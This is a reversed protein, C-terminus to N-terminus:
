DEISVVTGSGVSRGGETVDFTDGVLLAVPDELEVPVTAKGGPALTADGLKLTASVSATFIALLPRYGDAVPTSRGGEAALTIEATVHTHATVSGPAAIVRGREITDQDVGRLLVGVDDGAKASDVNAAHIQLQLVTAKIPAGAGGVVEVADGTHIEGRVVTGLAVTGMGSIPFVDAVPLFLADDARAMGTLAVVAGTVLVARRMFAFIM